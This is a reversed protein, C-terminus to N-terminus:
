NINLTIVLMFLGLYKKNQMLGVKELNRKRRKIRKKISYKEKM